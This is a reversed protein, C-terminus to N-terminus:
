AEGSRTTTTAAARDRHVWQALQVASWVGLAVLAVGLVRITWTLVHGPLKGELKRMIVVLIAFWSAIGAAASAGFPIAAIPSEYTFGKSYIFAVAAGWTILLTPNIASLSFGVLATGARPKDLDGKPERAPDGSKWLAFRVGLAALVLAALGRSVPVVLPHSALLATFGWFAVGAYIGEAAAAGLALHLAERYRKQAGRSVVMVSIPGALPMSGFFGFALAIACVAIIM